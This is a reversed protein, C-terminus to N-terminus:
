WWRSLEQEFDFNQWCEGYRDWNHGCIEHICWFNLYSLPLSYIWYSKTFLHDNQFIFINRVNKRIIWWERTIRYLFLYLEESITLDFLIGKAKVRKQNPGFLFCYDNSKKYHALGCCYNDGSCQKCVCPM